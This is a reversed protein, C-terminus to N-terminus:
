SLSKAVTLLRTKVPGTIARSVVHCTMADLAVTFARSLYGFM